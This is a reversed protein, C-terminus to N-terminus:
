VLTDAFDNDQPQPVKFLNRQRQVPYIWKIVLAKRLFENIESGSIYDFRKLMQLAHPKCAFKYREVIMTEDVLNLCHKARYIVPSHGLPIEIFLM